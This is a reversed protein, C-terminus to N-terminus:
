KVYAKEEKSLSTDLFDELPRVDKEV